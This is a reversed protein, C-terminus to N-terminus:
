SLAKKLFGLRSLLLMDIAMVTLITIGAMPFAMSVALGVLMAGKCLPM